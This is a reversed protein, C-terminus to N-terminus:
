GASDESANDPGGGPESILTLRQDPLVAVVELHGGLLAVKEGLAKIWLPTEDATPTGFIKEACEPNRGSSEWVNYLLQEAEM